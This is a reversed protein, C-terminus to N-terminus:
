TARAGFIARGIRVFTAGEEIAVEFDGTMGMSLHTLGIADRLARLTRFVPRIRDPDTSEPAVTMLGVPEIHHMGAIREALALVDEPAVGHKTQEGSINVELLVRVSSEARSAIERALPESDVSHILDFCEVAARVKNRQLNGILHWVPTVGVGRLERIKASGEQVRNEGFDTIGALSAQQVIAAPHTKSVAVLTVESPDRDARACASAIRDRVDALNRALAAADIV